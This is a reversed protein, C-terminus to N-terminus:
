EFEVDPTYDTGVKEVMKNWSKILGEINEKGVTNASHVNIQINRLDFEKENIMWKVCDIGDKGEGAGLDHDLSMEVPVGLKNITSIFDEYSRVVVWPGPTKPNREDDLYLKYNNNKM